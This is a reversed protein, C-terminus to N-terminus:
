GESIAVEKEMADKTEEDESTAHSRGWYDRAWKRQVWLEYENWGRIDRLLRRWDIAVEKSKALSVAHRLRGPLEERTSDLLAIFRKEVSDSRTKQAVQSMVSGMTGEGGPQLHMAFLSAITFICQETWYSDKETLFPVIYPYMEIANGPRQGLGRRLAALTGRAGPDDADRVSELWEIFREDRTTKEIDRM